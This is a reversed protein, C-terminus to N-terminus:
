VVISSRIATDSAPPIMGGLDVHNSGLSASPMTLWTSSQRVDLRGAECVAASLGISGISLALGTPHDRGDEHRREHCSASPGLGIRENVDERPRRCWLDRSVMNSRHLVSSLGPIQHWDAFEGMRKWEKQRRETENSALAVRLARLPGCWRRRLDGHSPWELLQDGVPIFVDAAENGDIGHLHTGSDRAVQIGDVELVPLRHLLSVKQERDIPARELRGECLGPGAEGLGLGIEG